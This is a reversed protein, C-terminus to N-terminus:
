AKMVYSTSSGLYRSNTFIEDLNTLNGLDELNSAASELHGFNVM